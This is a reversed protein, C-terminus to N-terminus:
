LTKGSKLINIEDRLQIREDEMKEIIEARERSIDELYRIRMLAKKLQLELKTPKLKM